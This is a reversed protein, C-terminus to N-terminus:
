QREKDLHEVLLNVRNEIEDESTYGYALPLIKNNRPDVAILAPVHVIGMNSAIGNDRQAQPFEPLGVEGIQVALVAWNYKQAFNKVVAAFGQCYKCDGRFFFLLGHTKALQEIKVRKNESMQARYIHLANQSHPHKLSYDLEPHTMIVRQWQKAFFESRAGIKEQVKIYAVLNAETPKILAAHLKDEVDKRMLMVQETPSLEKEMSQQKQQEKPKSIKEYWHWGRGSQKYFSAQAVNNCQIVVVLLLVFRMSRKLFSFFM